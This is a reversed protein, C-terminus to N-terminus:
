LYCNAVARAVLARSKNLLANEVLMLPISYVPHDIKTSVHLTCTTVCGLENQYIAELYNCRFSFSTRVLLLKVM